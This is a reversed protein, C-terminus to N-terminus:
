GARRAMATLIERESEEAALTSTLLDDDVHRDIVEQALHRLHAPPIADVEVSEGDFAKSRTDTKKTPRTPLNWREIQWSLVAVREFIIEADPAFETLRKEIARDIHVGSPDHDGFYYLYTPKNQSKITQAASHLFSASSFGRSIMLPVDWNATIDFLVGSIADKESWIEVYSDAQDWLARRYHQATYFLVDEVGNWSAPKRMLRTNDVIDQWAIEGEERLRLTLRAVTSKYEAETKGVVGKSVLRYFIQRVTMPREAAVLDIIALEIDEIEAKTRRIPCSGNVPHLPGHHGNSNARTATTAAQIQSGPTTVAGPKENPPPM